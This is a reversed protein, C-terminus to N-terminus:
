AILLALFPYIGLAMIGALLSYELGKKWYLYGLIGVLSLAFFFSGALAITMSDGSSSSIMYFYGFALLTGAIVGAWHPEAKLREQYTTFLWVFASIMLFVFLVQNNVALNIFNLSSKWAPYEQIRTKGSLGLAEGTITSLLLVALTAAGWPVAGKLLDWADSLRGEGSLTRDLLPTGMDTRRSVNIGLFTFIAGQLVLMLAQYLLFDSFKPKTPEQPKEKGYEGPDEATRYEDAWVNLAVPYEKKLEEYQGNAVDIWLPYQLLAGVALLILMAQFVKMELTGKRVVNWQAGQRREPRGKTEAGSAKKRAPAKEGTKGADVPEAKKETAYWERQAIATRKKKKKKQKKSAM